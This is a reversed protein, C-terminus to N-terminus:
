CADVPESTKNRWRSFIARLRRPLRRELGARALRAISPRLGLIGLTKRHFDWFEKDHRRLNLGLFAYYNHLLQRHRRAYEAPSLFVPGYTAVIVLEDALYSNVRKSFDTRALAPRRTYTLVRHVFGFDSAQLLEYCSATDWARFRTEDFLQRRTRILDSRILLSSPSGFVYIEGLLTSRCIDRGPTCPSPYPLGDLDVRTEDLRYASVIGISPHAEALRVMETLCDPFLWDDAHLLKCYRSQPSMKTVAVNHNEAASVLAQNRYVHIREDKDAYGVAIEHSGDTSANDLIVYEWNQYSQRLVSDICDGLYEAGNYVPTVISVLPSDPHPEPKNVFNLSAM